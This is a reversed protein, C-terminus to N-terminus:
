KEAASILMWIGLVGALILGVLSLFMPVEWQGFTVHIKLILRILHLIAVLIFFVGATILACNKAM